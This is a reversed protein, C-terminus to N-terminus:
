FLLEARRLSALAALSHAVAPSRTHASQANPRPPKTAASLCRCSRLPSAALKLVCPLPRLEPRLELACRPLACLQSVQETLLPFRDADLDLLISSGKGRHGSPLYTSSGQLERLALSPSLTWSPGHPAAPHPPEGLRLSTYERDSRRVVVRTGSPVCPRGEESWIKPRGARDNCTEKPVLLSSLDEQLHPGLTCEQQFILLDSPCRIKGPDCIFLALCEQSSGISGKYEEEGHDCGLQTREGRILREICPWVM